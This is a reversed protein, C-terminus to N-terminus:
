NFCFYVYICVVTLVVVYLNYYAITINQRVDVNLFSNIFLFDYITNM